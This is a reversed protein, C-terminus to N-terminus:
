LLMGCEICKEYCEVMDIAAKKETPEMAHWMGPLLTYVDFNNNSQTILGYLYEAKMFPELKKCWAEFSIQYKQHLNV